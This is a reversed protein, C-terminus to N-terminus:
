PKAAVPIREVKANEAPAPAASRRQERTPLADLKEKLTGFMREVPKMLQQYQEDAGKVEEPSKAAKFKREIDEMQRGKGRLFNERQSQANGLHTMAKQQQDATLKYRTIFNETYITWEDKPAAPAAKAVAPKPATTQPQTPDAPAPNEKSSVPVAPEALPESQAEAIQPAEGRLAALKTERAQRVASELERARERDLKQVGPSRYWDTAVDFGGGSWSQLRRGVFNTGVEFAALSAEMKVQQEDNMIPRMQESVNNVIEKSRELMPTARTAWDAVAEPSPPNVDLRMELFENALQTMERQNQKIFKLVNEKFIRRSEEAQAEDFQLDIAMKEAIRDLLKEMVSPSLMIGYGDLHDFEQGKGSQSQAGACADALALVGIVLAFRAVLLRM